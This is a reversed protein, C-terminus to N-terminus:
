GVIVLYEGSVYEGVQDLAPDFAKGPRSDHGSHHEMAGDISKGVAVVCELRAQRADGSGAPTVRRDDDVHEEVVAQRPAPRVVRRCAEVGEDLTYAGPHRSLGLEQRDPVPRPEFAHEFTPPQSQVRVSLPEILREGPQGKPRPVTMPEPLGGGIEIPVVRRNFSRKAHEHGRQALVHVLHERVADISIRGIRWHPGSGAGVPEPFVCCRRVWSGGTRNRGLSEPRPVNRPSRGSDPSEDKGLPDPEGLPM